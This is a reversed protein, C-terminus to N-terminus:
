GSRQLAARLRRGHAPVTVRAHVERVPAARAPRGRLCAARALTHERGRSRASRGTRRRRGHLLLPQDPQVFLGLHAPQGAARRPGDPKLGCREEVLDRVAQPLPTAHDGLFDERRFRVPAPWRSSWLPHLRTVSGIEDLYILPMAVRYSFEHAPGPGFRRHRLTGEYVASRLGVRVPEAAESRAELATTVTDGGTGRCTKVASAVGDEHFGYGWYAGCFWTRRVGNIEAHRKQAAVTAADLVPHAYDMRALVLTPDIADDRNLTVLVPTKSSIAQLQNLHYTLTAQDNETELRHYNWSAWARGTSAAVPPRRHALHGPEAPLRHRRPDPARRRDPDSLLALAQDSHTAVIVHDFSELGAPGVVEVGDPERRIKDVPAGLRLRGEGQLPRLIAECM